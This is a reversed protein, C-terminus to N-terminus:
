EGPARPGSWWTRAEGMERGEGWGARGGVEGRGRDGSCISSRAASIDAASVRILLPTRGADGAPNREGGREPGAGEGPGADRGGAVGGPGPGAEPGRSGGGGTWAASVSGR